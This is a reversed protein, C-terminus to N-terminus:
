YVEDHGSTQCDQPKSLLLIHLFNVKAAFLVSQVGVQDVSRSPSVSLATIDPILSEQREGGPMNVLM